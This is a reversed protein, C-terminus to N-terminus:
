NKRRFIEHRENKRRATAFACRIECAAASRSSSFSPCGVGYCPGVPRLYACASLSLLSAIVLFGRVNLKMSQGKRERWGALAAFIVDSRLM